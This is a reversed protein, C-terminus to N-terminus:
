IMQVDRNLYKVQCLSRDITFLNVSTNDIQTNYTQDHDWGLIRAALYKIAGGHTYVFYRGPAQDTFITTMWNHMRMGVENMSEGGELKFDLGLQEIQQQVAPTYVETRLRGEAPGQALEQLDDQVIPEINTLRMASLSYRATDWTRIAPSTFVRLPLIQKALMINGLRLAQKIGRPTLPSENSRGGILYPTTNTLTEAHRIFYLETHLIDKLM